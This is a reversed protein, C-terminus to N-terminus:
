KSVEGACLKIVAKRFPPGNTPTINGAANISWGSSVSFLTRGSAHLMELCVDTSTRPDAVERKGITWVTWEEYGGEYHECKHTQRWECGLTRSLARAVTETDLM